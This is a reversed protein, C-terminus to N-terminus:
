AAKANGDFATRHEAIFTELSKPRVGGVAEVIDTVEDFEGRQHAEAVRSLHAILHPSVGRIKGLIGQWQEVSIDVYQVPHGLAMTFVDAMEAISLSRPGTPLYTIGDHPAPESLVAAIVRALDEGGVPAHRGIGFPLYIRGETRITNAAFVILNELFFPPRLHTVAIDSWDLIREALWHRRSAPSPHDPRATIQSMNVIAELGTRQGAAAFITTAEVLGEAIPYTFYARRVDRLAASVAEFDLLDGAVIEAGLARLRESREDVHHVFARVPFGRALLQRVTHNGTSGVAGGAGTVLVRSMDAM